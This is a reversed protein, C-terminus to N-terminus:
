KQIILIVIHLNQLHNLLLRGGVSQNDKAVLEDPEGHGGEKAVVVRVDDDTCSQGATGSM